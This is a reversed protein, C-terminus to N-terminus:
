RATDAADPMSSRSLCPLSTMSSVLYLDLYELRLDKLTQKLAPKVDDKGHDTNRDATGPVQCHSSTYITLSM